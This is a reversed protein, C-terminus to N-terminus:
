MSYVNTDHQISLAKSQFFLLLQIIQNSRDGKYPEMPHIFLQKQAVELIQSEQQNFQQYFCQCIQVM